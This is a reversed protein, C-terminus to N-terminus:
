VCIDSGSFLSRAQIKPNNKYSEVFENPTLDGLSSHTRFHNYDEKWAAIKDQADALDM